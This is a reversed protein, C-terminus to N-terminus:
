SVPLIGSLSQAYFVEGQIYEKILPWQLMLGICSEGKQTRTGNVDRCYITITIVPQCCGAKAYQIRKLWAIKITGTKKKPVECRM